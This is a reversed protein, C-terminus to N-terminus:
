NVAAMRKELAGRDRTLELAQGILKPVSMDGSERLGLERSCNGDRVVSRKLV